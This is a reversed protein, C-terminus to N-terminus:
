LKPNNIETSFIICHNQDIEERFSKFKWKQRHVIRYYFARMFIKQLFRGYNQKNRLCKKM